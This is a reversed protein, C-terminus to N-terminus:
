AEDNEVTWVGVADLTARVFLYVVILFGVVAFPAQLMEAVDHGLALQGFGRVFFSLVVLGIGVVALKVFGSRDM